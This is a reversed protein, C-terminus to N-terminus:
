GCQWREGDTILDSCCVLRPRKKELFYHQLVVLPGEEGYNPVGIRAVGQVPLVISSAAPCM